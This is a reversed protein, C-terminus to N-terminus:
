GDAEDPRRWVRVGGDVTRLVFQLGTRKEAHHAQARFNRGTKGPVFFSDGPKLKLWPYKWKNLKGGRRPRPPIPIGSEVVFDAFDDSRSRASERGGATESQDPHSSVLQKTPRM